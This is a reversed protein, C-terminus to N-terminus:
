RPQSSPKDFDALKMPHKPDDLKKKSEEDVAEWTDTEEGSTAVVTQTAGIKQGRVVVFGDFATRSESGVAKGKNDYFIRHNPKM